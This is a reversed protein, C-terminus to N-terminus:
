FVALAYVHQSCRVEEYWMMPSQRVHSDRAFGGPKSSTKIMSRGPAFTPLVCCKPLTGTVPVNLLISMFVAVTCPTCRLRVHHVAVMMCNELARCGDYLTHDCRVLKLRQDDPLNEAGAPMNFLELVHHQKKPDVIGDQAADYEEPTDAKCTTSSGAGRGMADQQTQKEFLQM